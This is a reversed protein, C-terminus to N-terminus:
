EGYHEDIFNKIIIIQYVGLLIKVIMSVWGRPIATIIITPFALIFLTLIRKKQTPDIEKKM